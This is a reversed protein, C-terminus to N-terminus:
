GKANNIINKIKKVIWARFYCTLFGLGFSIILWLIFLM